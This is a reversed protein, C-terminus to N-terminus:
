QNIKNGFMKKGIHPWENAARQGTKILNQQPQVSKHHNPENLTTKLLEALNMEALNELCSEVNRASRKIESWRYGIKVYKEILKTIKKKTMQKYKRDFETTQQLHFKSM